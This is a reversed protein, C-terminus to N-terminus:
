MKARSSLKQLKQLKTSDKELKSWIPVTIDVALGSNPKFLRFHRNTSSIMSKKWLRLAPPALHNLLPTPATHTQAIMGLEIM